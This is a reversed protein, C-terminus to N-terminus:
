DPTTGGPDDTTNMWVPPVGTTNAIGSSIAGDALKYDNRVVWQMQKAIGHLLRCDNETPRARTILRRLGHFLLDAKDDWLFHIDTLAQRLHQLMRERVEDPAISEFEQDQAQGAQTWAYLCIAIAHSLNLAPYDDSTPIAMLDDCRSVEANSLGHPEPGFVLAIPSLNALRKFTEDPASATRILGASRASTAVSAVCGFLADDLTEVLRAQELLHEGHTARQRAEYGLHDAKPQVLVLDSLGFNRMLRATAGVNGAVEPRVLVVRIQSSDANM